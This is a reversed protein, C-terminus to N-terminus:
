ISNQFIESVQKCEQLSVFQSQFVLLPIAIFKVQPIIISASCLTLGDNRHSLKDTKAAKGMM